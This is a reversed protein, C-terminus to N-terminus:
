EYRHLWISHMLIAKLEGRHVTIVFSSAKCRTEDKVAQSILNNHLKDDVATLMCSLCIAKRFAFFFSRDHWREFLKWVLDNFALHSRSYICFFHKRLSECGKNIVFHKWIDWKAWSTSNIQRSIRSLHKEAWWTELYITRIAYSNGYCLQRGILVYCDPWERRVGRILLNNRGTSSGRVPHKKKLRGEQM